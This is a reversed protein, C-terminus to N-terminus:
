HFLLFFHLLPTHLVYCDLQLPLDEHIKYDLYKQYDEQQAKGEKQDREHEISQSM